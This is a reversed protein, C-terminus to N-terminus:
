SAQQQPWAQLVLDVIRRDCKEPSLRALLNNSVVNRAVAHGSQLFRPWTSLDSFEVVLPATATAAIADYRERLDALAMQPRPRAVIPAHAYVLRAMVFHQLECWADFDVGFESLRLGGKTHAKISRLKLIEWPELPRPITVVCFLGNRTSSLTFLFVEKRAAQALIESLQPHDFDQLAAHDAPVLMAEVPGWEYRTCSAIAADTVPAHLDRTVDAFTAIIDAPDSDPEAPPKAKAPAPVPTEKPPPPYIYSGPDDLLAPKYVPLVCISIETIHGDVVKFSVTGEAQEGTFLIVLPLGEDPHRTAVGIRATNVRGTSEASRIKGRLLKAVAERTDLEAMVWQSRYNVGPHLRDLFPEPDLENVLRAYLKAADLETFTRPTSPSQSIV